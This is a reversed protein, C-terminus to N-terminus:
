PPFGLRTMTEMAQPMKMHVGTASSKFGPFKGEYDKDLQKAAREFAANAEEETLLGKRLFLDLLANVELRLLITVERHDVVAQLEGDSKVRTGLQWSAFVKRWKTVKQLAVDLSEASM